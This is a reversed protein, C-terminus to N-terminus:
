SSIKAITLIIKFWLAIWYVITIILGFLSNILTSLWSYYQPFNLSSVSLYLFSQKSSLHLLYVKLWNLKLKGDCYGCVFRM